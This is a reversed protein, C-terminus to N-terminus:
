ELGRGGAGVGGVGFCWLLRHRDVSKILLSISPRENDLHAVGRGEGKRRGNEREGGGEQVKTNHASQTRLFRHVQVTRLIDHLRTFVRM